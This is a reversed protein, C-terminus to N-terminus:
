PACDGVRKAVLRERTAGASSDSTVQATYADESEATLVTKSEATVNQIHCTASISYANGNVTIPSFTCGQRALMDNTKKMDATPDSCRKDDITTPKGGAAQPEVTRHFEWLGKRFTPLDAALVSSALCLPVVLAVSWSTGRAALDYIDM